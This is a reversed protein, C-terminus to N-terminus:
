PLLALPDYAHKRVEFDFEEKFQHPQQGSFITDHKTAKVYKENCAGSIDRELARTNTTQIECKHIDTSSAVGAM